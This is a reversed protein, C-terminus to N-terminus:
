MKYINILSLMFEEINDTKIFFSDLVIFRHKYKRSLKNFM